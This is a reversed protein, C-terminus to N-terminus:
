KYICNYFYKHEAFRLGVSYKNLVVFCNGLPTPGRMVIM